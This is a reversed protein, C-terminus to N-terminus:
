MVLLMNIITNAYKTEGRHTRALYIISNRRINNLLKKRENEYTKILDPVM